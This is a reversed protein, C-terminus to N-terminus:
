GVRRLSRKLAAGCLLILLLVVWSIMMALSFSLTDALLGALWPFLMTAFAGSLFILATATGTHDPYRDCAITVLLPIIAGTLIGALGMAGILAFPNQLLMGIALIVGGFLSGGMLLKLLSVRTVLGACIARGSIIGLWLSSLAVSSLTTSAGLVSEMYMPAWTVLIVQHGMYLFMILCLLIILPSDKFAAIHQLPNGSGVTRTEAMVVAANRKSALLPMLLALAICVMGFISFIRNWSVGQELMYGAYIPGAFAGIGFFTHLLNLFLGKRQPHLDSVYANTISDFMRSAAGYAFFILLVLAFRHVFILLFLSLGMGLFAILILRSKKVFDAIIGALIIAGVGGISQFTMVLGGQSMRISHEAIIAPMLPGIVTMTVASMITLLYLYSTMTLRQRNVAAPTANIKVGSVSIPDAPQPEIDM